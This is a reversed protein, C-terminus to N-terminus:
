RCISEFKGFTGQLFEPVDSLPTVKKSDLKFLSNRVEIIM